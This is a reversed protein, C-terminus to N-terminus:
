MSGPKALPNTGCGNGPIAAYVFDMRPATCVTIYAPQNLMLAQYKSIEGTGSIFHVPWDSPLERGKYTNAITWGPPNAPLIKRQTDSTYPDVTYFHVPWDFLVEREKYANATIQEAHDMWFIGGEDGSMRSDLYTRINELAQEPHKTLFYEGGANSVYSDNVHFAQWTDAGGLDTAQMSSQALLMTPTGVALIATTLLITLTNM